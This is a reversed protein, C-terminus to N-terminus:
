TDRNCHPRAARAARRVPLNRLQRTHKRPAHCEEGEVFSPPEASSQNRQEVKQRQNRQEVNQGGDSREEEAFSVRAKVSPVFDPDDGIEDPDFVGDLLLDIPDGDCVAPSSSLMAETFDTIIVPRLSDVNFTDEAGTHIHGLRYTNTAPFARLM